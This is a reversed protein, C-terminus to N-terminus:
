RWGNPQLSANCSVWGAEDVGPGARCAARFALRYVLALGSGAPHGRNTRADRSAGHDPNADARPDQKPQRLKGREQHEADPKGGLHSSSSAGAVYLKSAYPRPNAKSHIVTLHADDPVSPAFRKLAALSEADPLLALYM